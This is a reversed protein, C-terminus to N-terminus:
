ASCIPGNLLYKLAFIEKQKLDINNTQLIYLPLVHIFQFSGQSAPTPVTFVFCVKLIENLEVQVKQAGIKTGSYASPHGTSSISISVIPFIYNTIFDKGVVNIVILIIKLSM